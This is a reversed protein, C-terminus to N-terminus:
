WNSNMKILEVSHHLLGHLTFNVSVLSLKEALLLSKGTTIQEFKQCNVEKTSSIVREYFINYLENRTFHSM